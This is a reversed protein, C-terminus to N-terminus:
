QPLGPVSVGPDRGLHHDLPLKNLPLLRAPRAPRALKELPTQCPPRSPPKM